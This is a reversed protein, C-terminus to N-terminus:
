FYECSMTQCALRKRCSFIKAALTLLAVLGYFVQARMTKYDAIPMSDLSDVAYALFCATWEIELVINDLVINYNFIGCNISENTNM